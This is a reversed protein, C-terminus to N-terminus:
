SKYSPEETGVVVTTDDAYRLNTMVNGEICIGGAWKYYKEEFRSGLIITTVYDTLM